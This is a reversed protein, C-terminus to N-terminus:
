TYPNRSRKQRAPHLCESRLCVSLSFLVGAAPASSQYTPRDTPRGPLTWPYAPDTTTQNRLFGKTPRQASAVASGPRAPDPCVSSCVHVLPYRHRGSKDAPRGAPQSIPRSRFEVTRHRTANVHRDTDRYEPCASVNDLCGTVFPSFSPRIFPHVTSRHFPHLSYRIFPHVSSRIFPHVSSRIFPHVSSRFSALVSSRFFPLVTTGLTARNRATDRLCDQRPM